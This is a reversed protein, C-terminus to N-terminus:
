GVLFGVTSGDLASVVQNGNIYTFPTPASEYDARLIPRISGVGDVVYRDSGSNDNPPPPDLSVAPLPYVGNYVPGGNQWADPSQLATPPVGTGSTSVIAPVALSNNNYSTGVVPMGTGMGGSYAVDTVLPNDPLLSGAYTAGDQMPAIGVAGALPQYLEPTVRPAAGGAPRFSAGAYRGITDFISTWPNPPPTPAAPKKLVLYAGVAVAGIVVLEGTNM